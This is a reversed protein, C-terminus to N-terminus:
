RSFRQQLEQPTLMEVQEEQLCFRRCLAAEGPPLGTDLLIAQEAGQSWQAVTKAYRVLQEWDEQRGELVLLMRCPPAHKPRNFWVLLMGTLQVVGLLALLMLLWHIFIYLM